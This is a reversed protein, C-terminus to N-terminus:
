RPVEGSRGLSASVKGISAELREAVKVRFAQGAAANRLTDANSGLARAAAETIMFHGFLALLERRHAASLPRVSTLRYASM